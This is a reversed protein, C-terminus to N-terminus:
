VTFTNAFPDDESWWSPAEQGQLAEPLTPDDVVVGGSAGLRGDLAAKIHKRQDPDKENLLFAYTYNLMEVISMDLLRRHPALRGDLELANFVIFQLLSITM